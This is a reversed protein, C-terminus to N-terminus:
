SHLEAAGAQIVSNWIDDADIEIYTYQNALYKDNDSTERQQEHQYGLAGHAENHTTTVGCLGYAVSSSTPITSAVNSLIDSNPPGACDVQSAIQLECQHGYAENQATPIGHLDYVVDSTTPITNAVSSLTNSIPPSSVQAYEVEGAIQGYQHELVGYAENHATPISHIGCAANYTTPIANAASSSTKSDTCGLQSIVYEDDDKTQQEHWGHTESSSPSITLGYAGNSTCSDTEHSTNPGDAITSSTRNM